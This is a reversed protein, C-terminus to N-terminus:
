QGLPRAPWRRRLGKKMLSDRAVAPHALHDVLGLRLGKKMLSDRAVRRCTQFVQCNTTKIGEEDPFRERRDCSCLRLEVSRRLGKKMLSDRAVASTSMIDACDAHRLGKKM